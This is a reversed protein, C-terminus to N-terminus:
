AATHMDARPMRAGPSRHHWARRERWASLGLGIGALSATRLFIIVWTAKGHWFFGPPRTVYGVVGGALTFLAIIGWFALRSTAPAADPAIGATSGPLRAEAWERLLGRQGARWLMLLTFAGGLLTSAVWLLSSGVIAREGIHLVPAALFPLHDGMWSGVHTFLDWALHTGAGFAISLAVRALHGVTRPQAELYAWDRLRFGGLDPVHRALPAAVLRTIALYLVMSLPLCYLLVGNPRHWDRTASMGILFYGFDPAMSGLVLGTGSVLRPWRWKFPLVPAQHALFTFPM